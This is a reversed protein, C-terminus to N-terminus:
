RRILGADFRYEVPKAIKIKKSLWADGKGNAILTSGHFLTKGGQFIRFCRFRFADFLRTSPANVLVAM